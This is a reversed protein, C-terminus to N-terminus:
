SKELKGFVRTMERLSGSMLDSASVQAGMAWSLAAVSSNLIHDNRDSATRCIKTKFVGLENVQEDSHIYLARGSFNPHVIESLVNYHEVIGESNRKTYHKELSGIASLVNFAVDHDTEDSEKGSGFVARVVFEEIEQSGIVNEEFNQTRLENVIAFVKRSVHLFFASNELSSRSIISAVGLEGRNILNVASRALDSARWCNMVMMAELQKLHDTWYAENIRAAKNKSNNSALEQVYIAFAEDSIREWEYEQPLKELLQNFKYISDDICSAFGSKFPKIRNKVSKSIDPVFVIKSMKVM